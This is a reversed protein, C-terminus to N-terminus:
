DGWSSRKTICGIAEEFLQEYPIKQMASYYMQWVEPRRKLLNLSFPRWGDAVADEITLLKWSNSFWKVMYYDNSDGAHVEFRTACRVNGSLLKVSGILVYHLVSGNDCSFKIVHNLKDILQGHIEHVTSGAQACRLADAELEWTSKCISCRFITKSEEIVNTM